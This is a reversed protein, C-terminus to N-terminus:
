NKSLVLEMPLNLHAALGSLMPECELMAEDESRYVNLPSYLHVADDKETSVASISWRWTARSKIVVYMVDGRLKSANSLNKRRIWWSGWRYGCERTAEDAVFGFPLAGIMCSWALLLLFSAAAAILLVGVFASLTADGSAIDLMPFRALLLFHSGAAFFGVALAGYVM